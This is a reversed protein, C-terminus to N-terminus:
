SDEPPAYAGSRDTRREFKRDSFEYEATIRSERTFDEDAKMVVNRWNDRKVIRSAM